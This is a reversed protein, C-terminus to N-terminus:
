LNLTCASHTAFQNPQFKFNDLQIGYVYLRLRSDKGSDTKPLGLYLGLDLYIYM